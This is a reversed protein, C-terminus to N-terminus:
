IKPVLVVRGPKPKQGYRSSNAQRLKDAFEISGYKQLSLTEWSDNQRARTTAPDSGRQAVQVQVDLEALLALMFAANARAEARTQAFRTQTNSTASGVAFDNSADDFAAQLTLMATKLQGIGGRFRNLEASAAREFSDIGNAISVLSATVTNITSVIGDLSELLGNPYQFPVDNPLDATGPFAAVTKLINGLNDKPTTPTVVRPRPTMTDDSDIGLVLKWAVETDSERAPEFTLLLGTAAVVDGWEIRVPVQDAVMQKMLSVLVNATTGIGALASDMWRGTLTWDDYRVGFTHRTPRTSGPYYVVQHRVAISDTVVAGHRPRGFPAAYDGLTMKKRSGAIQTITWPKGAANTAM